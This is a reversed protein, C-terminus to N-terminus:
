VARPVSFFRGAREPAQALIDDALGEDRARPEDPRPGVPDVMPSYMPEVGSTDVEALINMYEVIRGFDSAMKELAPLDAKLDLRALRAMALPADALVDM